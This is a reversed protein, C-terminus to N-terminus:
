GRHLSNAYEITRRVLELDWPTQQKRMAPTGNLAMFRIPTGATAWEVVRHRHVMEPPMMRFKTAPDLLASPDM